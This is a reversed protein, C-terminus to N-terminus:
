AFATLDHRAGRPARSNFSTCIAFPQIFFLDHEALPVHISVTLRPRSTGARTDHEALPVHISVGPEQALINLMRTTSRSPCTFQFRKRIFAPAHGATTSRSPCTFQFKEPDSWYHKVHTTSRSPCTFQFRYTKDLSVLSQHDHEALPVHISVYFYFQNIAWM